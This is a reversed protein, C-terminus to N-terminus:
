GTRYVDGLRGVARRLARDAAETAAAASSYRARARGAAATALRGAAARLRTAADLVAQQAPRAGLPADIRRTATALSGAADRLARAARAQTASSGASRLRRVAAARASEYAGLIRRLSSAYGAPAAVDASKVGDRLALSGLVGACTRGAATRAACAAVLV